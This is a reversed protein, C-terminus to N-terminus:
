IVIVFSYERKALSPSESEFTIHSPIDVRSRAPTPTAFESEFVSIVRAHMSLISLWKKTELKIKKGPEPETSPPHHINREIEAQSANTNKKHKNRNSKLWPMM